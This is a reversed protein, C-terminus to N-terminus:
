LSVGASNLDFAYYTKDAFEIIRKSELAEIGQHDGVRETFKNFSLM